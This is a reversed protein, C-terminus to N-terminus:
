LPLTQPCEHGVAQDNGVRLDMVAELANEGVIALGSLPETDYSINVITFGGICCESRVHGPRARTLVAGSAMTTM